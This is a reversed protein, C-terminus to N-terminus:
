SLQASLLQNLSAQTWTPSYAQIFGEVINKAKGKCNSYLKKARHIKHRPKNITIEIQFITKVQSGSPWLVRYDVRTYLANM